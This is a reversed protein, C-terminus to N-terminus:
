VRAVKRGIGEEAIVECIASGLGGVISHNEATVIAGARRAVSAVTARDLPKIVPVNIVSTAVGAETLVEAAALAAPLMMGNAFIAVDDGATLEQAKDISLEHDDEFIVPIEGRKLRLYVPGPLDVIAPLAKSIEMADAVDVVTMNPIARML